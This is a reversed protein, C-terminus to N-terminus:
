SRACALRLRRRARRVSETDYHYDTPGAILSRCIRRAMVPDSDALSRLLEYDEIGTKLALWRMGGVPGTRGPYLIFGDGQFGCDEYLDKDRPWQNAGWHLFGPVGYHFNFWPLLGGKNHHFDLFRNPWAGIPCCCVYYWIEKGQAALRRYFDQYPELYDLEPVPADLVASASHVNAADFLRVGPWVDRFLDAMRCFSEAAARFPEDAVHQYWVKSWGRRNVHDRLAALFARLFAKGEDSESSVMPGREMGGPQPVSVYLFHDQLDKKRGLHGGEIWSYGLRLAMRVFRDMRSFDFRYRGDALRADMLNGAEECFPALVMNQGGERMVALGREILRWHEQSWSRVGPYPYLLRDLRFWNTVKLRQAPREPVSVVDLRGTLREELGAGTVHFQFTSRGAKADPPLDWRALFAVTEGPAASTFSDEGFADYIRFPARRLLYPAQSKDWPACKCIRVTNNAVAVSRLAVVSPKPWGASPGAYGDFAVEVRGGKRTRAAVVVAASGGTAATLEGAAADSAPSRDPYVSEMADVLWAGAVGGQRKM